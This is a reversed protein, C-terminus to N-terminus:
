RYLHRVDILLVGGALKDTGDARLDFLVLVGHVVVHLLMLPMQGVRTGRTLLLKEVRLRQGNVNRRLMGLLISRRELTGATGILGQRLCIPNEMEHPLMAAVLNLAHRNLITCAGGTLFDTVAPGCKQIM